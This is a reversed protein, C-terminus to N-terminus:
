VRKRERERERERERPPNLQFWVTGNSVERNPRVSLSPIVVLEKAGSSM